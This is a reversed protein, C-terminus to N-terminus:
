PWICVLVEFDTTAFVNQIIQKVKYWDLGDIGCGIKPMAVKTHGYDYMYTKLDYLSEELSVYTPKDYVWQKTVLNAVNYLKDQEYMLANLMYGHRNWKQNYNEMLTNKVGRNTFQKAIGAGMVFDSSICHALVYDEPVSFLDRHEEKYNM